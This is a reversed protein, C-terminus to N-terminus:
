ALRVIADLCYDIGEEFLIVLGKEQEDRLLCGILGLTGDKGIGSDGTVVAKTDQREVPQHIEDEAFVGGTGGNGAEAACHYDLPDEAITDGFEGYEFIGGFERTQTFAERISNGLQLLVCVGRIIYGIKHSLQLFLGAIIKRGGFEGVYCNDEFFVDPEDFAFKEVRINLQGGGALGYFIGIKDPRM